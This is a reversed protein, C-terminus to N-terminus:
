RIKSSTSTSAQADATAPQAPRPAPADIANAARARLDRWRAYQADCGACGRERGRLWFDFWDLNRQYIALRHAPHWKVHHEDPFECM